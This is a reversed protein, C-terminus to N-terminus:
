EASKPWFWSAIQRDVRRLFRTFGNPEALPGTHFLAGASCALTDFAQMLRTRATDDPADLLRVANQWGIARAARLGRDTFLEDAEHGARDLLWLGFSYHRSIQRQVEDIELALLGDVLTYDRQRVDRGLTGLGLRYVAIPLDHFIHANMGLTLDAIVSTRGAKGLDFALQWCRAIPRGAEYGALADFYARAFEIDLAALWVADTFTTMAVQERVRETIIRYSRLFVARPDRTREFERLLESMRELVADVSDIPSSIPVSFGAASANSM